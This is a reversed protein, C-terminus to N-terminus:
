QREEILSEVGSRRRGSQERGLLEELEDEDYDNEDLLDRLEAITHESPDPLEDESSEDEEEDDADDSDVRELRDAFAELEQETGDFEDGEEYQVIEDGERRTHYRRTVRLM